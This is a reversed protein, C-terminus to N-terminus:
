RSSRREASQATRRAETETLGAAVAALVLPELDAAGSGLATCCAWFLSNNRNGEGQRALWAALGGIDGPSGQRPPPLPRPPDIVARAAAWSFRGTGARHDELVYPKGHVVSPPALVYGGRGRFDVHHGRLVGNPQDTGAFYLHLGGSPTSVLAMAGTLLGARKIRNLAAFGNGTARNDVDLVDPGPWGTAIAVNAGPWRRWWAAIVDPSTSANRFGNVTLPTKCRCDEPEPCPDAPPRTPFVPWGAAAYRLAADLQGTSVAPPTVTPM